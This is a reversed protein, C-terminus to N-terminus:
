YYIIPLGLYVYAYERAIKTILVALISIGLLTHTRLPSSSLLLTFLLLILCRFIRSPNVLEHFILRLWRVFLFNRCTLITKRNNRTKKNGSHPILRIKYFCLKRVANIDNLFCLCAKSRLGRLDRSIIRGFIVPANSVGFHCSTSNLFNM